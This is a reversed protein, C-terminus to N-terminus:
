MPNFLVKFAIAILVLGGLAEVRSGLLGGARKGLQLGIGTM